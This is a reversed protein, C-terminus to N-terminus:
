RTEEDQPFRETFKFTKLGDEVGSVVDDVSASVYVGDTDPEYGAAALANGPSDSGFFAVPKGYLFATNAIQLPRAPPYLTSVSTMSFLGADAASSTVVLADFDTADAASYTRDVGDALKEAVVTVVLKDAEFREKLTAAQELAGTGNTSALIGVKLTAITPLTVNTISIGATTNDHYYTPDPQPADLGLASAVRVAIDNSIRNLQTLVNQKM